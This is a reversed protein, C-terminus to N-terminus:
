TLTSNKEHHYTGHSIHIIIVKTQITQKSPGYNDKFICSKWKKWIVDPITILVNREAGIIYTEAHSSVIGQISGLVSSDVSSFMLKLMLMTLRTARTLLERMCRTCVIGKKKNKEKWQETRWNKKELWISESQNQARYDRTITYSEEIYYSPRFKNKM